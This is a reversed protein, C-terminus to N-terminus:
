FGKIEIWPRVATTTSQWAGLHLNIALIEGRLDNTMWGTLAINTTNWTQAVAARNTTVYSNATTVQKFNMIVSNTNLNTYTGYLAYQINTMSILNAPAQFFARRRLTQQASTNGSFAGAASIEDETYTAGYTAFDDVVIADAGVDGKEWYFFLPVRISKNTLVANNIITGAVPFVNVVVNEWNTKTAMNDAYNTMVDYTVIESSQMPGGYNRVYKWPVVTPSGLSYEVQYLANNTYGWKLCTQLDSFGSFPMFRWARLLGSINTPTIMGVANTLTISQLNIAGDVIAGNWNTISRANICANTAYNNTIVLGGGGDTYTYFNTGDGFVLKQASAVTAYLCLFVILIKKM